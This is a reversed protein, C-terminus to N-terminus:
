GYYGIVTSRKVNIIMEENSIIIPDFSKSIKFDVIQGYSPYVPGEYILSVNFQNEIDNKFSSDIVKNQAMLYGITIATSDLDSDSIVISGSGANSICNNTANVDVNSININGAFASDATVFARSTNITGGSEGGILNLNTNGSVAFISGSTSNDTITHGNLYINVNKANNINYTNTVRFDGDIMISTNDSLNNLANALETENTVRIFESSFNFTIYSVLSGNSVNSSNYFYKVNVVRSEGGLLKDGNSIGTVEYSILSNDNNSTTGSYTYENMTNNNLTVDFSVYASSSSGLMIKNIVLTEYYSLNVSNTADTMFGDHYVVDSIYIDTDAISTIVVEGNVDLSISNVSAYVVGMFVTAILIFFPLLKKM